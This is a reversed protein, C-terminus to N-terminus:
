RNMENVIERYARAREILSQKYEKRANDEAEIEDAPDYYECAAVEESQCNGSWICNKCYKIKSM